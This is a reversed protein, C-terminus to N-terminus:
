GLPLGKCALGDEIEEADLPPIPSLGTYICLGVAIGADPIGLNRDKRLMSDKPGLGDAGLLAAM